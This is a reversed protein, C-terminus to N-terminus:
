PFLDESKEPHMAYLRLHLFALGSGAFIPLCIATGQGGLSIV